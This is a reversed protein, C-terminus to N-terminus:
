SYIPSKCLIGSVGEDPMARNEKAAQQQEALWAKVINKDKNRKKKRTGDPMWAEAIWTSESQSYYISGEGKTRRDVAAKLAGSL